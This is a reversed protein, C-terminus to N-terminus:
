YLRRHCYNDCVNDTDLTNQQYRFGGHQIDHSKEIGSCSSYIYRISQNALDSHRLPPILNFTNQPVIDYTPIRCYLYSLQCEFENVPHM